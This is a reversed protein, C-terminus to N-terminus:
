KQLNWSQVDDATGMQGDPGPSIIDYDRGNEGPQKYVYDHEWPDKPVISVDKLYPGNWGKVGPNAVLANLGQSTTPPASADASYLELQTKFATINTIAASKKADEARGLFRPVIVAALIAVIVIVVVLEILTFGRQRPTHSKKLNLPSEKQLTM